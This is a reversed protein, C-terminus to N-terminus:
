RSRTRRVSSLIPNNFGDPRQPLRPHFVGRANRLHPRSWSSLTTTLMAEQFLLNSIDFHFLDKLLKSYDLGPDAEIMATVNRLKSFMTHFIRVWHGTSILQYQLRLDEIRTLLQAVHLALDPHIFTECVQRFIRLAKLVDTWVSLEATKGVIAHLSIGAPGSNWRLMLLAKLMADSLEPDLQSSQNKQFRLTDVAFAINYHVVKGTTTDLDV